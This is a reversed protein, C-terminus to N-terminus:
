TGSQSKPVVPVPFLRPARILVRKHRSQEGSLLEVASRPVGFATALFRRLAENAKGEVPPAQLRVRYCDGQEEVFGDRSARPQVRLSVELDDGCWRYWM